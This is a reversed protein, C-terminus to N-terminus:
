PERFDTQHPLSKSLGQREPARVETKTTHKKTPTKKGEEWYSLRAANM